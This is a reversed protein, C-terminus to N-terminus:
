MKMFESPTKDFKQRFCKAFYSMNQFGVRYAIETVSGIHQEMLSAARDLRVNRILENPMYGTLLKVKRYLQVSSMAMEEALMEVSFSRNGIEQDIVKMVKRLIKDDSSLVKIILDKDYSNENKKYSANDDKYGLLYDPTTDLEKCIRCLIELGMSQGAEYKALMKRNIKLRAALEEQTLNKNDRLGKLRKGIIM